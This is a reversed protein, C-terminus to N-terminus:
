AAAPAQGHVCRRSVHLAELRQAVWENQACLFDLVVDAKQLAHRYASSDMSLVNRVANHSIRKKVASRQRRECYSPTERM